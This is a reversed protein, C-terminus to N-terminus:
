VNERKKAVGGEFDSFLCQTEQHRVTHVAWAGSIDFWVPSGTSGAESM